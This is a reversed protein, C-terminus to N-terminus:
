KSFPHTYAWLHKEDKEFDCSGFKEGIQRSGVERVLAFARELDSKGDRNCRFIERMDLAAQRLKSNALESYQKELATIRRAQQLFRKRRPVFRGALGVGVDWIADLGTPLSKIALREDLM